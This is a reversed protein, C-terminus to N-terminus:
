LHGRLSKLYDILSNMQAGMDVCDEYAWCLQAKAIPVLVEGLAIEQYMTTSM